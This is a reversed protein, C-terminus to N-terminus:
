IISYNDINNKNLLPYRSYFINYHGSNIFGWFDCGEVTEEWDFNGFIKEDDLCDAAKPDDINGQEKRCSLIRDYIKPEFKKFYALKNNPYEYM